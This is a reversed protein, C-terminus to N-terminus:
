CWFFFVVDSETVTKSIMAEQGVKLDELFFGHLERFENENM